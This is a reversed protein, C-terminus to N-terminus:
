PSDHRQIFGKTEEEEEEEEAAAAKSRLGVAGLATQTICHNIGPM